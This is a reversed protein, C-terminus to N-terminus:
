RTNLACASQVNLKSDSSGAFSSSWKDLFIGVCPVVRVSFDPLRACNVGHIYEHLCSLPIRSRDLVSTGMAGQVRVPSNSAWKQPRLVLLKGWWKGTMWLVFYFLNNSSIFQWNEQYSIVYKRKQWKLQWIANARENRCMASWVLALPHQSCTHELVTLFHVNTDHQKLTLIDVRGQSRIRSTSLELWNLCRSDQRFTKTTIRLGKLCNRPCYRSYVV